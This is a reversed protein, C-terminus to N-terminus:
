LKQVQARNLHQHMRPGAIDPQRCDIHALHGLCMGTGVDAAKDNM